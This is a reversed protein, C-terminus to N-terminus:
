GARLRETVWESRAAQLVTRGKGDTLDTSVRSALFQTIIAEQAARAPQSGTGGRGTDQVALHFPTSGSKNRADAPAGADLLCRVAAACRTRVARHLPTAGNADAAAVPAGAGMLAELSAVQERENWTDLLPYGDAAYHLPQAKRRSLAAVDAGADLMLGVMLPRHAAAALHLPTDGAYIWHGIAEVMFQEAFGTRVWEADTAVLERVEDINNALILDPLDM